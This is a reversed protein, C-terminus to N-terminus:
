TANALAPFVKKVMRLHGAEEAKWSGYRECEGAEGNRFVMTECVLAPGDGWFPHDLAWFSQPRSTTTMTPARPSATQM